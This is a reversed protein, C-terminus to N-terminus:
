AISSVVVTSPSLHLVTASSPLVALRSLTHISNYVREGLLGLHCLTLHSPQISPIHHYYQIPSNSPLLSNSQPTPSFHFGLNSNAGSSPLLCTSSPQSVDERRLPGGGSCELLTELEMPNAACCRVAWSIWHALWPASVWQVLWPVPVGQVLASATNTTTNLRFNLEM